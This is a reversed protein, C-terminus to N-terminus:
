PGEGLQADSPVDGDVDVARASEFLYGVREGVDTLTMGEALNDDHDLRGLVPL